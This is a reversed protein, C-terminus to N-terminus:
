SQMKKDNRYKETTEVDKAENNLSSIKLRLAREVNAPVFKSVDGGIKAVSKIMQSSIFHMDDRSPLFFTQVSSDLRYNISSMQFEYEFDSFARIGRIIVKAGISHTFDILLGSFSVVSAEISFETLTQKLMEVREETSFLTNKSSNNDSVAITLNQFVESSRKILDLHGNTLPDFTGPYVAKM